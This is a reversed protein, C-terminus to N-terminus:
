LLVLFDKVLKRAPDTLSSRRAGAGGVHAEVLNYGLAAEVEKIRNWVYRYSKHVEAAAHKISGVRHVAELIECIDMGFAYNGGCELWVTAHPTLPSCRRRSTPLRPM